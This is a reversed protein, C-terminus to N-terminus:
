VIISSLPVHLTAAPTGALQAGAPPSAPQEVPIPRAM